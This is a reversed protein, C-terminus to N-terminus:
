PKTGFALPMLHAYRQNETQYCGNAHTFDDESLANLAALGTTGTIYNKDQNDPAKPRRTRGWSTPKYISM